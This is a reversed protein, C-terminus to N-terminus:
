DRTARSLRFLTVAVAVLCIGLAIRIPSGQQVGLVVLWFAAIVAVAGLLILLNTRTTPDM